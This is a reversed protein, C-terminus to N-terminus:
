LCSVTQPSPFNIGFANTPPTANYGATSPNVEYAIKGNSDACFYNKTNSPDRVSIAWDSAATAITGSVLCWVTPQAATWGSNAKLANLINLSGDATTTGFITSAFNSIAWPWSGGTTGDQACPFILNNGGNFSFPGYNGYDTNYYLASQKEIQTLEEQINSINARQRASNLSALIVSSLLSIISIVMLLEVLTFGDRPHLKM